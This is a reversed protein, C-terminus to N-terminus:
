IDVLLEFLAQGLSSVWETFVKWAAALLLQTEM